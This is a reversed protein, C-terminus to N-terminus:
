RQKAESPDPPPAPAVPIALTSFSSSIMTPSGPILMGPAAIIATAGNTLPANDAGPKGLAEMQAEMLRLSAQRMRQEQTQIKEYQEFQQPSLYPRVAERQQEAREENMKVSLQALQQRDTAAFARGNVPANPGGEVSRLATVLAAVQDERLPVGAADFQTRLGRVQFRASMSAQYDKWKQMGDPGLEAAIQNETERQQQQLRQLWQQRDSDSAPANEMSGMQQDVLLEMLRETQDASLGTAAELDPYMQRMGLKRQERMAARYAPNRLLQQQREMVARMSEPTVRPMAEPAISVPNFRPESRSQKAPTAPAAAPEAPQAVAPQAVAALVPAPKVSAELMEIRERLESTTAREDQLANFLHACYGSFGLATATTLVLVSRTM